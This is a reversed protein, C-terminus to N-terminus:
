FPVRKIPWFDITDFCVFPPIEVLLLIKDKFPKKSYLENYILTYHCKKLLLLSLKKFRHCAFRNGLYLSYSVESETEGTESEEQETMKQSLIASISESELPEEGHQWSPVLIEGFDSKFKHKIPGGITFDQRSLRKIKASEKLSVTLEKRLEGFILKKLERPHELPEIEPDLARKKSLEGCDVVSTKVTTISLSSSVRKKVKEIIDKRQTKGATEEEESM